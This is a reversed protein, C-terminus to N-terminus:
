AATKVYEAKVWGTNGNCYVKYWGDVRDIVDLLTGRALPKTLLPADVRPQGRFNLKSATVYGRVGASTATPVLVPVPVAVPAPVAAVAVVDDPPPTFAAEIDRGPEILRQRLRDLPFAPGPNFVPVSRNELAAAM